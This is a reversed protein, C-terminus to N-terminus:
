EGTEEQGMAAIIEAAVMPCRACLWWYRFVPRCPKSTANELCEELPSERRWQWLKKTAIKLSNLIVHLTWQFPGFGIASPHIGKDDIYLDASIKRCDGGYKAIREPLNENVADFILGHNRCWKVAETLRDGMRCTNLIVKDGARQAGKLQRILALNGVGIGPYEDQCLTGDFDVAIIQPEPIM